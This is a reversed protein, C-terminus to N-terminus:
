RSVSAAVTRLGAPKACVSLNMRTHSVEIELKASSM